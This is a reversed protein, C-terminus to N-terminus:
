GRPLTSVLFLIHWFMYSLGILLGSQKSSSFNYIDTLCRNYKAKILFNKSIDYEFDTELGLNFWNRFSSSIDSSLGLSPCVLFIFRDKIKYKVKVPICM